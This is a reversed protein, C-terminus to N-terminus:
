SHSRPWMNMRANSSSTRLTIWKTVKSSSSSKKLTSPSTSSKILNQARRARSWASLLIRYWSSVNVCWRTKRFTFTGSPSWLMSKVTWVLASRIPRSHARRSTLGCKRASVRSWMSTSTCTKVCRSRFRRLRSDSRWRGGLSNHVMPWNDKWAPLCQFPVRIKIIPHKLSLIRQTKCSRTVMIAEKTQCTRKSVTMMMMRAKVRVAIRM